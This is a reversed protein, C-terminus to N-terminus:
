SRKKKRTDFVAAGGIVSAWLILSFLPSLPAQAHSYFDPFLSEAPSLLSTLYEGLGFLVPRAQLLLYHGLPFFAVERRHEKKELCLLIWPIQPLFRLLLRLLLAPYFPLSVLRDNWLLIATKATAPAFLRAAAFLSLSTLLWLGAAFLATQWLSKKKAAFLLLILTALLVALREGGYLTELNAPARCLPAAFDETRLSLLAEFRLVDRPSLPKGSGSFRDTKTLLSNKLLRIDYLAASRSPTMAYPLSFLLLDEEKKERREEPTLLNKEQRERDLEEALAKQDGERLARDVAATDGGECLIRARLGLGESAFHSSWPSLSFTLAGEFYYVNEQKAPNTEAEKKAETLAEEIAGREEEFSTLSEGEEPKLIRGTSSSIGLLLLTLLPFLLVSLRKM